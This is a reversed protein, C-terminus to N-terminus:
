KLLRRSLLEALTEIDRAGIAEVVQQVRERAGLRDLALVEALVGESIHAGAFALVALLLYRRSFPDENLTPRGYSLVSQSEHVRLGAVSLRSATGSPLRRLHELRSLLVPFSVGFYDALTILDAATVDGLGEQQLHDFRNLVAQDPLLFHEAFCEATRESANSGAGGALLVDAAPSGSVYHGYEHALSWQRKEASQNRNVALCAAYEPSYSFLAAIQPPFDLYFVRLGREEELLQRLELVPRDGLGLLKRETRAALEGAREPPLGALVPGGPLPVRDPNGALTELYAYNSCWRRFSEVADSIAEAAEPSSARLVARFQDSFAPVPPGPRMLESTSRGYLEAMQVLETTRVRRKGQEIAVLTTRAIGLRRAVDEQTLRRAKRAETLRRGLTGPDPVNHDGDGM